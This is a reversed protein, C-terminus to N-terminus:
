KIILKTLIPFYPPLLSSIYKSLEDEKFNFTKYESVEMTGDTLTGTKDLCLVNVRALM